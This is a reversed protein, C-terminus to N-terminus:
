NTTYDHLRKTLILLLAIYSGIIQAQSLAQSRNIREAM